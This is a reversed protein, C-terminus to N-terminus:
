EDIREKMSNRVVQGGKMVFPLQRLSSIDALPNERVAVIDALKGAQLTGLRDDIQLLEAAVKTAALLTRMPSLGAQNMIEMERVNGPVARPVIEPYGGEGGETYETRLRIRMPRDSGCAITVGARLASQFAAMHAPAMQHARDRKWQHWNDEEPWTEDHTVALTPVYCVGREALLDATRDDLLYGHEVCDLGAKVAEAIAQASGAHATVKKGARHAIETVARVEEPLMEAVEAGYLRGALGGSIM